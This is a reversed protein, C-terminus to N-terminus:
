PRPPIGLTAELWDFVRQNRLGPAMPECHGDAGEAAIFPMLTKPCTLADHLTQSQGPWFAEGEPDTVLTPCRILGAVDTLDYRPLATLIDFLSATGYPECRKALGGRLIAPMAAMGQAMGADFTAKDSSRFFAIADPPFNDLWSTEVRM